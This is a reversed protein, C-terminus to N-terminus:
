GRKKKRRKNYAIMSLAAQKDADTPHIPVCEGCRRCTRHGRGPEKHWHFVWDHIYGEIGKGWPCTDDINLDGM